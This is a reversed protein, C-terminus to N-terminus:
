RVALPDPAFSTAPLPFGRAQDDLVLVAGGGAPPAFDRAADSPFTGADSVGGTAIDFWSARVSTGSLARQNVRLTRGDPV